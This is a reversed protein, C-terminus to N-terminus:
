GATSAVFQQNWGPVLKLKNKEGRLRGGGLYKKKRKEKKKKERM